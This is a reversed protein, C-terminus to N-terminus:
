GHRAHLRLKRNLERARAVHDENHMPTPPIHFNITQGEEGSRTGLAFFTMNQNVGKKIVAPDVWIYFGQGMARLAKGGGRATAEQFHLDPLQDWIEWHLEDLRNTPKCRVYEM